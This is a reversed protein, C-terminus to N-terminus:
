KFFFYVTALQKRFSALVCLLVSSTTLKKPKKGWELRELGLSLHLRFALVPCSTHPSLAGHSAEIEPRLFPFPSDMSTLSIM